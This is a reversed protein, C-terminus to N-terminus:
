LTMDPSEKRLKIKNVKYKKKRKIRYPRQTYTMAKLKAHKHSEQNHSHTCRKGQMQKNRTDKSPRKGETQQKTKNWHILKQKIM